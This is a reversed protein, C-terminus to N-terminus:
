NNEKRKKMLIILAASAAIIVIVFRIAAASGDSTAVTDSASSGAATSKQVASTQKSQESPKKSQESNVSSEPVVDSMVDSMDYLRTIGNKNRLFACLSYFAQATSYKNSTDSVTHSFAGTGTKYFSKLADTVSLSNKIFRPDKEADIGLSSLACLVQATSECNATGFSSYSGDQNQVQSLLAVAKDVADNIKKDSKGYYRSLAQLVMGTMDPDYSDGFFTWGGDELQLTLIYDILKERVADAKGELPVTDLAILSYVAGNIGQKIDFDYDFLKDSFENGYEDAYKKGFSSVVIFYKAYDTANVPPNDKLAQKLANIYQDKEAATLRGLRSLTMVEWENGFVLYDSGTINASVEEIIKEVSIGTKYDSTESVQSEPASSEPEETSSETESPISVNVTYVTEEVGDPMWGHWSAHGVGIYLKDGNAVPIDKSRCYDNNEDPTYTNKYIKYRYNKNEATPTLKVSTSGEPLSLTFSNDTDPGDVSGKDAKLEKLKTSTSTYDAGLDAGWNMSYSFYMEDGDRLSGDSASFATVGNNGYWDDVGFMWGGMGEAALGQIETIYGTQAGTQTFGESEVLDIFLSQATSDPKLEVWKDAITGTWPTNDGTRTNNEIVIRVKPSSEDAQVSLPFAALVTAATLVCSLIKTKKSM